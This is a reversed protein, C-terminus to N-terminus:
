MLSCCGCDVDDDHRSINKLPQSKTEENATAADQFLTKKVSHNQKEDILNEKAPSHNVSKQITVPSSIEEITFHNRAQPTTPQEPLTAPEEPSISIQEQSVKQISSVRPKEVQATDTSHLTHLERSEEHESSGNSFTIVEDSCSDGRTNTEQLTAQKSTTQRSQHPRTTTSSSAQDVPASVFHTSSVETHAVQTNTKPRTVTEESNRTTSISSLQPVRRTFSHPPSPPPSPSSTRRSYRRSTTVVNTFPLEDYRSTRIAPSERYEERIPSANYSSEQRLRQGTPGDTFIARNTAPNIMTQPNNREERLAQRQDHESLRQFTPGDVRIPRGTKPNIVTKPTSPM